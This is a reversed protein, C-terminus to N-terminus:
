IKLNNIQSFFISFDKSVDWEEALKEIEADTMDVVSKKPKSEQFSQSILVICFISVVVVIKM